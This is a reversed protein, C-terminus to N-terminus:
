SFGLRRLGELLLPVGTRAGSRGGAWGLEAAVEALRAREILERTAAKGASDEAACLLVALAGPEPVPWGAAQALERAVTGAEEAVVVLAAPADGAEVLDYGALLAELAAGPGAGVAFAPGKLGFVISCEGAILNPSTPPFRRPEVGRAGRERLRAHHAENRELTAGMSGVVIATEEPLPAGRKALLDACAAVGLRSYPDLRLLRLPDIGLREALAAEDLDTRPSGVLEVRVARASRASYRASHRAGLVLAANAGGFASSLKLATASRGIASRELLRATLEPEIPGEGVAAPLIGKELARWAALAELVGAAGLTHGIVAKFPQVVAREAAAGLCRALAKAEAADNYPTATAHASVIDINSPDLGADDLARSAARYLGAGTRDPATVHVADSSAGFGLVYGRASAGAERAPALAVLAAGEGLVMGDRGVRFPRPVQSATARLSEFGAAIFLSLADFGGAIVIDARGAEVLRAGLGLALTGSSCASLVLREECPEIGLAERLPSLAGFYFSARALRQDVSRGAARLTLARELSPLGGGSTGVVLAVRRSRLDPLSQDLEAKLETAAALLLSEARDAGDPLPGRVRAALPRILGARELEPDRACASRAPEGAEGPDYARVGAGLASVAGVAIVAVPKM